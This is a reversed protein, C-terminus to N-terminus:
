SGTFTGTVTGTVTGPATGPATRVLAEAVVFDDAVTLKLNREDSEVAAM